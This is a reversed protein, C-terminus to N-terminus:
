KMEEKWKEDILMKGSWIYVMIGGDVIIDEGIVYLSDDLVFFLVVMVMEKLQGFCGFLMIWKNVECFKVGMEQEKIGLLKDILLIEIMGLFIFNVCIGNRVYDIVMVRILNIIGGKVVNYGFCDFDVVWGLMFFINIIFGGKEFMFLILYKSCFFMGCLDVVIICDFLDVLYEYVKGGEYDVGVNNFLIDIM